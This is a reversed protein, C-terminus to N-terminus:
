ICEECHYKKQKPGVKACDQHVWEQCGMFQIMDRIEDLKCLKCFWSPKRKTVSEPFSLKRKKAECSANYELQVLDGFPEKLEIEFARLSSV